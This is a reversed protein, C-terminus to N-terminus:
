VDLPGNRPDTWLIEWSQRKEDWGKVLCTGEAWRVWRVGDPAPWRSHRRKRAAERNGRELILVRRREEQFWWLTSSQKELYKAQYSWKGYNKKQRRRYCSRVDTSCRSCIPYQTLHKVYRKTKKFSINVQKLSISVCLSASLCSLVRALAPTSPSPSSCIERRAWDWLGSMMVRALILFQISLQSLWELTGKCM